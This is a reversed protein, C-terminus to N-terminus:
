RTFNDFKISQSIIRNLANRRLSYVHQPLWRRGRPTLYGTENLHKAIATDMWGLRRLQQIADILQQKYRSQPRVSLVVPGSGVTLGKAPDSPSRQPQTGQRSM